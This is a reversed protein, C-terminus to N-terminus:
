VKIKERKIRQLLIKMGKVSLFYSKNILWALMLSCVYVSLVIPVFYVFRDTIKPVMAKLHTYIISDFIWSVLYAGLCLGSLTEWIKDTWPKREKRKLNMLFGFTLVTLILTFLSSYNQWIGWIFEVGYSRWYNYTGFLLISLLLLPAAVRKKMAFGYENLFCCIFYYTIPYINNWWYPILKQYQTAIHPTQWWKEVEFNYVNTVGGLATLGCLIIILLIKWKKTPIGNYLINLFPIMLFLGIYMEIYWSYPAASFDLIGEILKRFNWEGDFLWANVGFCLISSLVYITLTYGIKSYYKRGLKKNRMLYGSLVMFLPVCVMLATRLLVAVYMRKGIVAKDYFGSNLFFHVAVVALLAFCRIIDMNTDRKISIDNKM